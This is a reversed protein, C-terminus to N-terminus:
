IKGKLNFYINILLQNHLQFAILIKKGIQQSEENKGNYIKYINVFKTFASQNVCALYNLLFANM